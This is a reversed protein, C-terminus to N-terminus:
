FTLHLGETACPWRARDRHAFMDPGLHTLYMQQCRLEDAHTVLVDHTLHSPVPQTWGFCECLFLDADAAIEGLVPTWETDGSYALLRGGVEIRVGYSPAGSEHVVRLPTVAIGGLDFRDREAFEVFRHPVREAVSTGLGPFLLELTDTVRARVGAPGAIVLARDRPRNFAADLLLFPVGAFHDGHLHSLVIHTIEPQVVGRQQLAVPAAAGCDLLACVAASRVVHCTHFRGGTAFADGTGLFEISASM